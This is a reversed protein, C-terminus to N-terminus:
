ENKIKSIDDSLIIKKNQYDVQWAAKRMLNNGLIGDVTRCGFFADFHSIDMIAAGTREFLVSGVTLDELAVFEQNVSTMTSTEVAYSTVNKYNVENKIHEGIVSIEAGTDFIFNYSNGKIVVDIFILDNVYNFPIEELFETNEVSGKKLLKSVKLTSCSQLVLITMLIAIFRM